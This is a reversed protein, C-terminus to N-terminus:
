IILKIHTASLRSRRTGTFVTTNLASIKEAIANVIFQNISTNGKLKEIKAKYYEPIRLAFNMNNRRYSGITGLTISVIAFREAMNSFILSMIPLSIM